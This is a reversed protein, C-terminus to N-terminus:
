HGKKYKQTPKRSAYDRIAKIDSGQYSQVFYVAQVTDGTVEIQQKIFKLQNKLDKYMSELSMIMFTQIVLM